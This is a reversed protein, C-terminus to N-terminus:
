DDDTEKLCSSFIDPADHRLDTLAKIMKIVSRKVSAFYVHPDDTDELAEQAVGHAARVLEMVPAPVAPRMLDDWAAWADEETGRLPGEVGCGFGKCAVWLVQTGLIVGISGCVRCKAHDSM